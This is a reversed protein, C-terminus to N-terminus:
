ADHRINPLGAARYADLAEARLVHLWTPGASAKSNEYAALLVDSTALTENMTHEQLWPM